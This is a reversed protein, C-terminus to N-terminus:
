GRDLDSPLLSYLTGNLRRGDKYYRSRETGEKKFRCKTLVKASRVNDELIVAEIRFLGLQEFGFRVILATAEAMYGLGWHDQGLWYGIKSVRHTWEVKDLSIVGILRDSKRLIIGFIYSSRELMSKEAMRIFQIAGDDPYPYPILLTWKVVEPDNVNRTIDDADAEELSRLYIRKGDIHVQDGEM